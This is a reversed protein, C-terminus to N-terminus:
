RYRCRSSIRKAYGYHYVQPDDHHHALIFFPVLFMPKYLFFIAHTQHKRTPCMTQEPLSVLADELMPPFEPSLHRINAAGAPSLQDDSPGQLKLTLNFNTQRKDPWRCPHLQATISFLNSYYTIGVGRYTQDM